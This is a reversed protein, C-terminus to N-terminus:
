DLCSDIGDACPTLTTLEQVVARSSPLISSMEQAARSPIMTLEQVTPSSYLHNSVLLAEEGVSTWLLCLLSVLLLSAVIPQHTTTSLLIILFWNDGGSSPTTTTTTSFRRTATSQQQQQELASTAPISYVSPTTSSKTFFGASGNPLSNMLAARKQSRAMRVRKREAIQEQENREQVYNSFDKSLAVGQQYDVDDYLNAFDDPQENPNSLFHRSGSPIMKTPIAMAKTPFAVVGQRELLLGLVLVLLLLIQQTAVSSSSYSTTASSPAM